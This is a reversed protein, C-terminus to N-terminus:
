DRMSEPPDKEMNQALGIELTIRATVMRETTYGMSPNKRFVPFFTFYPESSLAPLCLSRVAEPLIKRPCGSCPKL